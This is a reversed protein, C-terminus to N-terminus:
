CFIGLRLMGGVARFLCNHTELSCNRQLDSQCLVIEKALYVLFEALFLFFFGCGKGEIKLCVCLQLLIQAHKIM